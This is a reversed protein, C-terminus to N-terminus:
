LTRLFNEIFTSEFEHAKINPHQNQDTVKFLNLRQQKVAEPVNRFTRHMLPVKDDYNLDLYPIGWKKAIQLTAQPYDESDCGNSVIIGIKVDPYNAYLKGILSNYAGMFTTEDTSDIDGIPVNQHSDNIGIYITIIDVNSPIQSFEREVVNSSASGVKALTYGNQALNVVNFKPNRNKIFFPYVKNLGWSAGKQFTFGDSLGTFDGHTFSDGLAVWTKGTFDGEDDPNIYLSPPQNTYGISQFIAFKADSPVTVTKQGFTDTNLVDCRLLNLSLDFWAVGVSASRSGGHYDITEGPTVRRLNTSISTYSSDTRTLSGNLYGKNYILRDKQNIDPNEIVENGNIKLIPQSILGSYSKGTSQFRVYEAPEPTTIVHNEVTGSLNTKGVVTEKDNAYFIAAPYGTAHGTYLHTEGSSTEIFDTVVSNYDSLDVQGITDLVANKLVFGTFKKQINFRPNFELSVALKPVETLNSGLSQVRAQTANFPAVFKHSTPLEDNAISYSVVGGSKDRWEVAFSNGRSVGYYNLIVGPYVNFFNSIKSIRTDEDLLSGTKSHYGHIEEYEVLGTGNLLVAASDDIGAAQYSGGDVWSNNQWFYKHGDNVTLMVGDAGNPYTSQLASLNAFVKTPTAAVSGINQGKIASDLKDALQAIPERVDKGNQKTRIANALETSTHNDGTFPTDDRYDVTM